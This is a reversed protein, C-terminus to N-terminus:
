VNKPLHKGLNGPFITVLTSVSRNVQWFDFERMLYEYNDEIFKVDNTAEYYEYAMPLLFPPQSRRLYYVRGGNPVFGFRFGSSDKVSIKFFQEGM